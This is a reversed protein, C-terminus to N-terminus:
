DLRKLWTDGRQWMPPVLREIRDVRKKDAFGVRLMYAEEADMDYEWAVETFDIFDPAGIAVMVEYPTAGPAVLDVRTARPAALEPYTAYEGLRGERTIHFWTCPIEDPKEGMFRLAAHVARRMTMTTSNFPNIEGDAYTNEIDWWGGSSGAYDSQQLERLDAIVDRNKNQAAMIVATLVESVREGEDMEGIHSAGWGITEIVFRREAEVCASIFSEDSRAVVGGGTINVILRRGWSPRIVFLVDDGVELYYWRSHGTWM